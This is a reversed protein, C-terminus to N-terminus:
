RTVLLSGTGSSHGFPMRVQSVLLLPCYIITTTKLMSTCDARPLSVTQLSWDCSNSWPVASTICYVPDLLRHREGSSVSEWVCECGQTIPDGCLCLMFVLGRYQFCISINVSSISIFLEMGCCWNHLGSSYSFRTADTGHHLLVSTALILHHVEGVSM